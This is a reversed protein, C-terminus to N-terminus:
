DLGKYIFKLLCYFIGLQCLNTSWHEEMGEHETAVMAVEFVPNDNFDNAFIFTRIDKCCSAPVDDNNIDFRSTSNVHGM